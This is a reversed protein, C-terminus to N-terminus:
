RVRDSMQDKWVRGQKPIMQLLSSGLIFDKRPDPKDDSGRSSRLREQQDGYKQEQWQRRVPNRVHSFRESSLCPFATGPSNFSAMNKVHQVSKHSSRRGFRPRALPLSSPYSTSSQSESAKSLQDCKPSSFFLFSPNCLLPNSNSRGLPKGSKRNVPPTSSLKKQSYGLHFDDTGKCSLKKDGRRIGTWTQGCSFGISRCRDRECFGKFISTYSRGGFIDDSSFPDTAVGGGLLLRDVMELASDASFCATDSVSAPSSANNAPTRRSRLLITDM